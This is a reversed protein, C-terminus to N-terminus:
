ILLSSVRLYTIRSRQARATTSGEISLGAAVLRRHPTGSEIFLPSSGFQDPLACRVISTASIGEHSRLVYSCCPSADISVGHQRQVDTVADDSCMPCTDATDPGDAMSCSHLIQSLGSSSLLLAVATFAIFISRLM